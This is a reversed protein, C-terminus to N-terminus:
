RQEAADPTTAATTAKRRRARLHTWAILAIKLAILAAVADVAIDTWRSQAVVTGALGIHVAIALVVAVALLITRRRPRPFGQRPEPKM